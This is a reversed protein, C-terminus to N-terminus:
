VAGLGESGDVDVDVVQERGDFLALLGAAEAVHLLQCRVCDPLALYVWLLIDLLHSRDLCQQPTDYESCRGKQILFVM